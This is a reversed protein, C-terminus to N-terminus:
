KSIEKRRTRNRSNIIEDIDDDIEKFETKENKEVFSNIKEDIIDNYTSSIINYLNNFKNKQNNKSKL